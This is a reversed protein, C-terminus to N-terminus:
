FVSQMACYCFNKSHDQAQGRIQGQLRVSVELTINDALLSDSIDELVFEVSYQQYNIKGLHLVTFAACTQLPIGFALAILVGNSVWLHCLWFLHCNVEPLHARPSFTTCLM